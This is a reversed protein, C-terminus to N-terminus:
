LALRRIKGVELSTNNRDVMINNHFDKLRALRVIYYEEKTLAGDGATLVILRNKM